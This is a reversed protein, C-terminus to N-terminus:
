ESSGSSAHKKRRVLISVIETVYYGFLIGSMNLLIDDIDVSRTGFGLYHSMLQGVEFLFPILISLLYIRKKSYDRYNFWIGLPITLLINGVLNLAIIHLPFSPNVRLLEIYNLIIKFPIMNIIPKPYRLASSLWIVYILGTVYVIMGIYFWEKWFSQFKKKWLKNVIYFFVPISALILSNVIIEIESIM